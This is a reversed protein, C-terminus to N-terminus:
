VNEVYLQELQSPTISGVPIVKTTAPTLQLDQYQVFALNNLGISIDIPSAALLNRIEAAIINTETATLQRSITGLRLYFDNDVAEPTAHYKHLLNFQQFSYRHRDIALTIAGDQWSWGILVPITRKDASQLVFSRDGPHQNRSLFNYDRDRQYGGFRIMIPLEIQQQLYNVVGSFNIARVEQRSAKFWQSIVSENARLGECGIITGHVQAMQYPVFKNQLLQHNALQTQLKAILDQMEHPKDGYFAVLSVNTSNDVAKSAKDMIIQCKNRNKVAIAKGLLIQIIQGKTLYVLLAVLEGIDEALFLNRDGTFCKGGISM